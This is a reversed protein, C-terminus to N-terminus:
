SHNNILEVDKEPSIILDSLHEFVIDFLVVFDEMLCYLFVEVEIEFLFLLLLWMEDYSWCFGIHHFLLM